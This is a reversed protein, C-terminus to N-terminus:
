FSPLLAVDRHKEPIQGQGAGGDKKSIRNVPPIGNEDKALCGAKDNIDSIDHQDVAFLPLGAFFLGPGEM